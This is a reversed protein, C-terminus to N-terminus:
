FAFKSEAPVYRENYERELEDQVDLRYDDLFNIAQQYWDRVSENDVLEDRRDELYQILYKTVKIHNM